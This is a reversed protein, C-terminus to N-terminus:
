GCASIESLSRTYSLRSISNVASGDAACRRIEAILTKTKATTRAYSPSIGLATHQYHCIASNGGRQKGRSVGDSKRLGINLRSLPCNIECTKKKESWKEKPRAFSFHDFVDKTQLLEGLLPEGHPSFVENLRKRISSTVRM